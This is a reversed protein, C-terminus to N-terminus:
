VECGGETKTSITYFFFITYDLFINFTYITPTKQFTSKVPLIGREAGTELGHGSIRTEPAGAFMTGPVQVLHKARQVLSLAPLTKQSVCRMKTVRGASVPRQRLQYVPSDQRGQQPDQARDRPEQSDAQSRRHRGTKQRFTQHHPRIRRAQYGM